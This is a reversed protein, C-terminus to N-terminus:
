HGAGFTVHQLHASANGTTFNWTLNIPAKDRAGSFTATYTTNAVLPTCPLLFVVGDALLNNPDVVATMVSNLKGGRSILIHAPIVLGRTSDELTFKAVSLTNRDQANVMVMIPRGLASPGFGLHPLEPAMTLLVQTEGDYPVHVVATPPIQQGGSYIGTNPGPAGKVGGATGFETTCVYIPYTASEPVFGLGISEQNKLLPVLHYVSNIAQGICDRAYAAPDMQHRGAAIIEGVWEKMAVGAKRARSLPTDAYYNAFGSAEDHSLETLGGSALNSALYLAHAQAATDLRPDQRLKGVHVSVRYANVLEFAKAQYSSTEYTPARVSNQLARRHSFPEGQHTTNDNKESQNAAQFSDHEGLGTCAALLISFIALATTTTKTQQM